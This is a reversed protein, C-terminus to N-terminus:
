RRLKCWSITIKMVQFLIEPKKGRFKCFLRRNFVCGLNEWMGLTNLLRVKQLYLNIAILLSALYKVSWEGLTMLQRICHM